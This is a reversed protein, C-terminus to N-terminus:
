FFTAKLAIEKGSFIKGVGFRQVTTWTQMKTLVESTYANFRKPLVQMDGKVIFYCM